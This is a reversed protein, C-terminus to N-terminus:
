SYPIEHAIMKTQCQYTKQNSAAHECLYHGIGDHWINGRGLGREDGPGRILGGPENHDSGDAVPSVRGFIGLNQPRLKPCFRARGHLACVCPAVAGLGFVRDDPRFFDGLIGGAFANAFVIGPEIRVVMIETGAIELHEVPDGLIVVDTGNVMAAFAAVKKLRFTGSSRV